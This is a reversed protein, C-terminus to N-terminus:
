CSVQAVAERSPYDVLYDFPHFHLDDSMSWEPHQSSTHTANFEAEIGQTVEGQGSHSSYRAESGHTTHLIGNYSGNEAESRQTAPHRRTYVDRNPPGFIEALQANLDVCASASPSNSLSQPPCVTPIMASAENLIDERHFHDYDYDFLFWPEPQYSGLDCSATKYGTPSYNEVNHYLGSYPCYILHDQQCFCTAQADGQSAAILRDLLQIISGEPEARKVCPCSSGWLEQSGPTIRPVSAYHTHEWPDNGGGTYLEVPFCKRMAHLAYKAFANQQFSEAIIAEESEWPPSNFADFETCYGYDIDWRNGKNGVQQVTPSLFDGFTRLGSTSPASGM